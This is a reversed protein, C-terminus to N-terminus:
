YRYREQLFTWSWKLAPQVMCMTYQVQQLLHASVTLYLLPVTYKADFQDITTESTNRLFTLERM